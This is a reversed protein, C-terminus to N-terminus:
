ENFRIFHIKRKTKLQTMLVGSIVRGMGFLKQFTMAEKLILYSFLATFPPILNAFINARSPGIEKVGYVYLMFALASGFMALLFLSSITEIGPDAVIVQDWEFLLVVPFFFIMGVLSQYTTLTYPNYKSSLKKVVLTFGVAAFVGLFLYLLGEVSGELVSDRRIIIVLVGMFSIIIGAINVLTLRERYFIFAAVPVMLPITAIVVAALTPSVLALGKAEGIFYLFPEFFALVAIWLFDRWAPRQLRGIMLGIIWLLNGAIVLRFFVITVPPFVQNVIKFWIFTMSWFVSALTLSVFVKIRGQDM